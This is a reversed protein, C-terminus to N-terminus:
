CNKCNQLIKIKEMYEITSLTYIHRVIDYEKLDNLSEINQLQEIAKDCDVLENEKNNQYILLWEQIIRDSDRVCREKLDASQKGKQESTIVKPPIIDKMYVNVLRRDEGNKVFQSIPLSVCYEVVRKDRTPDRLLVGTTLSHKTAIEGIQRFAKFDIMAKRYTKMCKTSKGIGEYMTRLRTISDYKKVADLKVFSKGLIDEQTPESKSPKINDKIISKIAYKRSYGFLPQFQKLEKLITVFKKKTFLDNMYLTFDTFSITTNGFSGNLMIRSGNNYALKMSECIWLLNQVSKYPMEIAELEAKRYDWPNMGPMDVFTTEINSFYKATSKVYETEDNINYGGTNGKLGKEPVSTYSHINEGRKKLYPAAISVVATSDLGGSLLVSTEKDSRLMCKVADSFIELFETKYQEDTKYVREKIDKPNWYNDKEINSKTFTVRSAPAVRYVDEIPTNETECIMYLHDMSLFDTIWEGNIDSVKDTSILPEILSSYYIKNNDKKYYVCRDGTSDTALTAKGSKTDYYMFAYVGRMMNLSKNGYKKYMEFLIRGDPVNETTIGLMSILEDRNDLVVDADFYIGDEYIPMVEYKAEKTFYQIGCGMYVNDKALEEYRDIVCKDFISRIRKQESQRISKQEFDIIGWIASM